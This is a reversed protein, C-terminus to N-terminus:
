MICLSKERAPLAVPNTAKKPRTTRSSHTLTDLNCCHKHFPRTPPYVTGQAASSEKRELVLLLLLPLLRGLARWPCDRRGTEGLLPLLATHSRVSLGSQQGAVVLVFLIRPNQQQNPMTDERTCTCADERTYQLVRQRM